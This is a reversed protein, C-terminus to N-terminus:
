AIAGCTCIFVLYFAEPRQKDILGVRDTRSTAEHAFFPLWSLFMDNGGPSHGEWWSWSIDDALPASPIQLHGSDLQIRAAELPSVPGLSASSWSWVGLSAKDSFVLTILRLPTEDIFLLVVAPLMCCTSHIYSCM